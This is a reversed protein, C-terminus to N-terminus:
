FVEYRRDVYERTRTRACHVGYGSPILGLSFFMLMIWGADASTSFTAAIFLVSFLVHFFFAITVILKMTAAKPLSPLSRSKHGHKTHGIRNRDHAPQHRWHKSPRPHIPTVPMAIRFVVRHAPHQPRYEICRMCDVPHWEGSAIWRMRHVANLASLAIQRNSHASGTGAATSKSVM